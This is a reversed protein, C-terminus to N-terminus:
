YVTAERFFLLNPVPNRVRILLATSRTQSDVECRRAKRSNVTSGLSKLRVGEPQQRDYFGLGSMVPLKSLPCDEPTNQSAEPAKVSTRGFAAVDGFHSFSSGRLKLIVIDALSLLEVYPLAELTCGGARRSSAIM